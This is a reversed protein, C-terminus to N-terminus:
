PAFMEALTDLVVDSASADLRGLRRTLRSKDAARMQNLAIEGVKGLFSVGVRTPWRRHTTTMSAIIVTQLDKNAEDPSIVLSPRAKAIEAGTVPALGVSGSVM